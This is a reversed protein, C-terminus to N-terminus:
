NQNPTKNLLKKLMRAQFHNVAKITVITVAVAAVVKLSETAIQKKDM